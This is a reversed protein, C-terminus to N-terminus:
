LTGNTLINKFPTKINPSINTNIIPKDNKEITTRKKISIKPPSPFVVTLYRKIATAINNILKAPHTSVRL